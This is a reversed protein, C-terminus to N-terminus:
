AAYNCFLMMIVSSLQLIGKRRLLRALALYVYLSITIEQTFQERGFIVFKQKYSM